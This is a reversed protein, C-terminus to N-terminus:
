PTIAGKVMGKTTLATEAENLNFKNSILEEFPYADKNTHLVTIAIHFQTMLYAWSGLFDIDKRCIRHPNLEVPGADTYHGVEVYKGGDRVMEMGEPVADPVGAAEIGVDAGLGNTVRKVMEIREDSNTIQRMDITLDAGMKVAINLRTEVMDLGIVKSAGGIKAAAIALLGIPGLGQVVVTKGLGFGENAGPLGPAFARELARTSTAMPEVLAGLELPFDEPLKYVYWHVPDVYVYESYGGLLHPPEKCTMNVGYAKRSTCLNPRDPVFRCFYCTGCFGTTGPCVAIKDGVEFPSGRAELHVAKEGLEEITGTFEHGPIIPLPLTGRGNYFHIYTGCVGAIDTKM